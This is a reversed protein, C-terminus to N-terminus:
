IVGRVTTATITVPQTKVLDGEDVAILFRSFGIRERFERHRAYRGGLLPVSAAVLLVVLLVSPLGRWHAAGAARPLGSEDGELMRDDHWWAVESGYSRIAAPRSERGNRYGRSMASWPQSNLASARAWGHPTTGVRITRRPIVSGALGGPVPPYAPVMWYPWKQWACSTRMRRRM